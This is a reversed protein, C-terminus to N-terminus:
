GRAAQLVKGQPQPVQRGEPDGALDLFTTQVLSPKKGPRLAQRQEESGYQRIFTESLPKREIYRKGQILAQLQESIEAAEMKHYAAAVKLLEYWHPAKDLRPMRRDAYHHSMELKTHGLVQKVLFPDNTESYLWCALTHRFLRGGGKGEWVGAKVMVKGTFHDLSDSARDCVLRPFIRGGPEKAQAFMLDQLAPILSVMRPRTKGQLRVQNSFFDSTRISGVEVPRAGTTLMLLHIARIDPDQERLVELLKEIEDAQLPEVIQLDPAAYVMEDAPNLIGKQRWGWMRALTSYMYKLVRYYVHAQNDTPASGVFRGLEQPDMPLLKFQATFKRLPTAYYTHVTNHSLRKAGLELEELFASVAEAAPIQPIKPKNQQLILRELQKLRASVDAGPDAALAGLAIGEAPLDEAPQDGLQRRAKARRKPIRVEAMPNYIRHNKEAWTYFPSLRTKAALRTRPSDGIGALFKFIPTPAQPLVPCAQAFKSLIREAEKLTSPALQPKVTTLYDQVLTCSNM